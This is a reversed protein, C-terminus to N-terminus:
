VRLFESALLRRQLKRSAEAAAKRKGATREFEDLAQRWASAVGVLAAIAREFASVDFDAVDLVRWLCVDDGQLSFTGYALDEPRKHARLREGAWDTTADEPLPGLDFWVLLGDTGPCPFDHTEMFTGGLKESRICFVGDADPEYAGDFGGDALARTMLERTNM